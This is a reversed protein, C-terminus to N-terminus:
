IIRGVKLLAEATGSGVVGGAVTAFLDWGEVNGLKMWGDIIWEKIAGVALAACIGAAWGFLYGIVVGFVFGVYAHIQKDTPVIQLINM